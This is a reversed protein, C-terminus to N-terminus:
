ILGSRGDRARRVTPRAAPTDVVVIASGDVADLGRGAPFSSPSGNECPRLFSPRISRRLVALRRGSCRRRRVPCSRSRLVLCRAAILWKLLPRNERDTESQHISVPLAHLRSIRARARRREVLEQELQQAGVVLHEFRCRGKAKEFLEVWGISQSQPRPREVFRAGRRSPSRRCVPRVTGPRRRLLVPLLRHHGDGVAVSVM